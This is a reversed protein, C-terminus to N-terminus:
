VPERISELIHTLVGTVRRREELPDSGHATSRLRHSCVPVLMKRIDMPLVFERGQYLANAQAATKVALAGRPSIGCQFTSESRTATIIKLLYEMVSPEIFVEGVKGQWELIQELSLVPDQQITDYHWKGSNLLEMEDAFAPYGMETRMFFRDLQSDPLPYTGEFDVPNQTAFVM